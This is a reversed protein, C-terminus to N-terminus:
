DHRPSSLIPMDLAYLYARKARLDCKCVYDKPREDVLRVCGIGRSCGGDHKGAQCDACFDPMTSPRPRFVLLEKTNM